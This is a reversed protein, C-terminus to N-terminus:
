SHAGVELLRNPLNRLQTDTLYPPGSGAERLLQELQAQSKPGLIACSVLNNALVFRLAAARPSLVNGGVLERVATLQEVRRRLEARTWRDKRHDNDDFTREASWHATLLGYSLVSHALVTIGKM